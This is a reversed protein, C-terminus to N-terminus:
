IHQYNSSLPSACSSRLFPPTADRDSYLSSRHGKGSCQSHQFLQVTGPHEASACKLPCVAEKLGTDPSTPKLCTTSHTAHLFPPSAPLHDFPNVSSEKSPGKPTLNPNTSARCCGSSSGHLVSKLRHSPRRIFESVRSRRLYMRQWFSTPFLKSLCLNFLCSRSAQYSKLMQLYRLGTGLLCTAKPLPLLLPVWQLAQETHTIIFNGPSLSLWRHM